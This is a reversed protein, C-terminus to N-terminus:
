LVNVICQTILMYSALLCVRDSCIHDKTGLILDSNHGVVRSDVGLVQVVTEKLMKPSVDWLM